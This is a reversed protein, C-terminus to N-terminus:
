TTGGACTLVRALRFLRQVVQEHLVNIQEQLQPFREVYERLFEYIEVRVWGRKNALLQTLRGWVEEDYIELKALTKLIKIVRRPNNDKYESMFQKFFPFFMSYWFEQKQELTWITNYSLASAIEIAEGPTFKLEKRAVERIMFEWLEVKDYKLAGYLMGFGARHGFEGIFKPLDPLMRSWMSETMLDHKSLNYIITAATSASYNVTPHNQVYLAMAQLEPLGGIMKLEDNFNERKIPKISIIRKIKRTMWFPNTTYPIDGIEAQLGYKVKTLLGGGAKLLRSGCRLM